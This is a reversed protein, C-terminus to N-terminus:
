GGGRPTIGEHSSRHNAEDVMSLRNAYSITSPSLLISVLLVFILLISSIM